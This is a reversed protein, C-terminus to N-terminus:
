PSVRPDVCSATSVKDGYEDTEDNHSWSKPRYHDDEDTPAVGACRFTATFGVRQASLAPVGAGSEQPAPLAATSDTPTAGDVGTGDTVDVPHVMLVGRVAFSIQSAAATGCSSESAGWDGVPRVIRAQAETLEMSIAPHVETVFGTIRRTKHRDSAPAHIDLKFLDAALDRHAAPIGTAAQLAADLQRGHSALVSSQAALVSDLQAQAADLHQKAADVQNQCATAAEEASKEARHYVSEDVTVEAGATIGLVALEEDLDNCTLQTGGVAFAPVHVPLALEQCVQSRFDRFTAVSTKSHRDNRASTCSSTTSWSSRVRSLETPVTMSFLRPEGVQLEGAQLACRVHRIPITIDSSEVLVEVVETGGADIRHEVLDNLDEFGLRVGDISLALAHPPTIKIAEAIEIRADFMTSQVAEARRAYRSTTGSGVRVTALALSTPPSAVVQSSDRRVGDALRLRVTIASTTVGLEAGDVMGAEDIRMRMDEFGLRTGNVSLALSDASKIGLTEAIDARVDQVTTHTITSKGVDIRQPVLALSEPVQVTRDKLQLAQDLRLRVTIPMALVNAVLLQTMDDSVRAAAALVSDDIVAGSALLLQVGDADGRQTTLALLTPGKTRTSRQVHPEDGHHWRDVTDLTRNVEAGRQILLKAMSYHGRKIALDLATLTPPCSDDCMEFNPDAGHEILM